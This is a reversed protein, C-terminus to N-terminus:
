GNESQNTGIGRGVVSVHGDVEAQDIVEPDRVDVDVVELGDFDEVYECLECTFPLLM